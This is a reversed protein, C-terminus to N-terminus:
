ISAVIFCLLEEYRIGYRDGSPEYNQIAAGEPSLIEEKEGWSDHCFLGYDFPNLGHSEFISKVTQAGVGFHIRAKDGKKEVSETMKFKRINAKVEKACNREAEEIELLPTKLREDSTNITANAAFVESYRKDARGLAITNDTSSRVSTEEFEIFDNSSNDTNFGLDIRIGSEPNSTISSYSENIQSAGAVFKIGTQGEAAIALRGDGATVMRWRDTSFLSPIDIYAPMWLFGGTTTGIHEGTCPAYVTSSTPTGNFYTRDGLTATKSLLSSFQAMDVRVCNKNATDQHIILNDNDMDATVSVFNESADDRFRIPYPVRGTPDYGKLKLNTVVNNKGGGITVGHPQTAISDADDYAIVNDVINGHSQGLNVASFGSNYSVVNTIINNPTNTNDDTGFYVANETTNSVINTAVNFESVNKLEYVGFQGLNQAYINSSMCFKNNALLLGGSDDGVTFKTGDALFKMDDYTNALNPVNVDLSYSLIGFGRGGMETIKYNKFSSFQSDRDVTSQGSQGITKNVETKVGEITKKDSNFISLMNQNPTLQKLTGTGFINKNSVPNPDSLFLGEPIKKTETQGSFASDIAYTSNTIGDGVAGFQKITIATDTVKRLQLGNDMDIFSGGDDVGTGSAVVVYQASGGDDIEYYGSTIVAQGITYPLAKVQILTASRQGSQAGVISSCSTEIGVLVVPDLIEVTTEGGAFVSSGITSYEYASTGVDLRVRRGITYYDTVNGTIKFSTPSVYYVSFCNVWEEASSASVPDASWIENDDADKLVVKYSGDLYVNAYGEGNLVVPNTNAVIGDESQYTDKPANTRAKYTYLKGFALPLGDRGWAYFKPGIMSVSM